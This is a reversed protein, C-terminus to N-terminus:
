SKGRVIQSTDQTHLNDNGRLSFYQLGCLRTIAAPIYSLKNNDITIVTLSGMSSIDIFFQLKICNLPHKFQDNFGLYVHCIIRIIM